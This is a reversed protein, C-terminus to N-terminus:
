QFGRFIILLFMILASVRVMPAIYDATIQCAQTYTFQHGLIMVPAPCTNPLWDSGWDLFGSLDVIEHDVADMGLLESDDQYDPDATPDDTAGGNDGGTPDIPDFDEEAATETITVPEWIDAWLGPEPQLLEPELFVDAMQDLTVEVGPAPDMEPTTATIARTYATIQVQYAPGLETQAVWETRVTPTTTAWEDRLWATPTDTHYVLKTQINRDLCPIGIWTSRYTGGSDPVSVRNSPCTGTTSTGTIITPTGNQGDIIDWGAAAIIASAGVAAACGIPNRICLAAYARLKGANIAASKFVRIKNGFRDLGDIVLRGRRTGVDLDTVGVVTARHGSTTMVTGANTLAAVQATLVLLVLCTIARHM